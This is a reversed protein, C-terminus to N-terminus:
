YLFKNLTNKYYNWADHKKRNSGLFHVVEAEKLIKKLLSTTLKIYKNKEKDNIKDQAYEFFKNSICNFYVVDPHLGVFDESSGILPNTNYLSYMLLGQEEGYKLNKKNKNIKYNKVIDKEFDYGPHLGIFGSNYGQKENIFLDKYSGLYINSDKIILNKNNASLFEEIIKPKKLFILDNDLIIEHTDKSLRPPCIKWFSGNLKQKTIEEVKEPLDIGDIPCDEWKQKIFNIKHIKKLKEIEKEDTDNYCVYYEFQNSYLKRISKISHDLIEYGSKIVHGITWRIIPKNM